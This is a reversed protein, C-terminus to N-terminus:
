FKYGTQEILSKMLNYKEMIKAYQGFEAEFDEQSREFVADYFMSFDDDSYPLNDYHLRDKWDKYYTLFGIEYVKTIDRDWDDVYDVVDGGSGSNYSLNTWERANESSSNFRASVLSKCLGFTWDEEDAENEAEVWGNISVGLCRWCALTYENWPNWSQTRSKLSNLLLVSYPSITSGEIHPLVNKKFLEAGKRMDDIDTIQETEYELYSNYTNYNWKFDIKNERYLNNGDSDKGILTPNLEESFLLHIGTEEHFERRLVSVPDVADTPISFLDDEAHSPTLVEEDSCASFQMGAMVLLGYIVIKKM